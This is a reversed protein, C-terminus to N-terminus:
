LYFMHVLVLLFNAQCFESTFVPSEGCTFFDVLEFDVLLFNVLLNFVPPEGCTFFGCTFFDCTFFCSTLFGFTSFRWFDCFKM